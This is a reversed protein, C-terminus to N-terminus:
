GPLRAAAGRPLLALLMARVRHWFASLLLLACGAILATVALGEAQTGSTRLVHALAYIVYGLASVLLARRDVLLALVALVAYVAVAIAARAADGGNELLGLLYFVPHVLLPAALLHLWFAVDARRTLRARDSMDWWVGLAFVVLGALITLYPWYAWLGPFFGLILCVVLMIAAGAGAAVTVPVHFRWWHAYIALAELGATFGMTLYIRSKVDLGAQALTHVVPMVLLMHGIMWGGIVRLLVLWLGGAYLLLLLISPLAMRRRRTFYEALGWAEAALYLGRPAPGSALVYTAIAVLAIAISVFIDNFGRLLPVYEEDVALSHRNSAIYARFGEATEPPMVGAQVAADLDQDSYM